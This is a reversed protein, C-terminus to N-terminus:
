KGYRNKIAEKKAEEDLKVETKIDMGFHELAKDMVVQIVEISLHKLGPMSADENHWEAIKNYVEKILSDIEIENLNKNEM